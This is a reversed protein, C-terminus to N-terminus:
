ELVELAVRAIGNVTSMHMITIVGDGVGFSGKVYDFSSIDLAGATPGNTLWVDVSNNNAKDATIVGNGNNTMSTLFTKTLDIVPNDTTNGYSNVATPYSVGLIRSLNALLVQDTGTLVSFDHTHAQGTDNALNILDQVTSMLTSFGVSSMVLKGNEDYYPVENPVPAPFQLEDGSYAIPLKIARGIQVDQEQNQITLLDVATEIVDAPMGDSVALDTQQELPTAGLVTVTDGTVPAFSLTVSGGSETGAGSIQSPTVLTEAGSPMTVVVKLHNDALFKFPVAFTVTSGDGTYSARRPTASITM